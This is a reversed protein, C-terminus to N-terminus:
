RSGTPASPARRRSGAVAAALRRARARPVARAARARERRTRRTADPRPRRSSPQRCRSRRARDRRGTPKVYGIGVLELLYWPADLGLGYRWRSRASAPDGPRRPRCRVPRPPRATARDPDAAALALHPAGPLSSCSRSRTRPPSGAARRRAPRALAVTYGAIEEEATVPRRVALRPRSSCGLRARPRRLLGVLAGARALRGAVATAPNPPRPRGSPGPASCVFVRSFSASSSGSSFGAACRAAAGAALAVATGAASRTCISSRSPSPFSCRSWSSSSRGAGSSAGASGSTARPARLSSSARTSRARRAAPGCAGLQGLRTSDLAAQAIASRLRRGTAARRSRSRRSGPRSSRGRSTSRTRSARPRDAPRLLEVHRPAAGTQEAIRAITTAVLARTRRAPRTVPSRSARADRAGRDRRPRRRRRDPERFPSDEVFHQAGLGGYAGGDTSLFVLTRPSAVHAAGENLPQAYARALEILAATGSANDNAGPGTGIDDRHAM